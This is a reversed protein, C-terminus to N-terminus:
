KDPIQFVTLRPSLILTMDKTCHELQLNKGLGRTSNEVAASIPKNQGQGLSFIVM